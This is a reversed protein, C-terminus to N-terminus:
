PTDHSDEWNSVKPEEDSFMPAPCTCVDGLEPDYHTSCEPCIVVERTIDQKM